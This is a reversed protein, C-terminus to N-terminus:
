IMSLHHSKIMEPMKLQIKIIIYPILHNNICKHEIESSKKQPGHAQSEMTIVTNNINPKASKTTISNNSFITPMPPALHPFNVLLQLQLRVWQFTMSPVAHPNGKFNHLYRREILIRSKSIFIHCVQSSLITRSIQFLITGIPRYLIHQHQVLIHEMSQM